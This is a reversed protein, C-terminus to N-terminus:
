QSVSSLLLPKWLEGCLSKGQKQPPSRKALHVKTLVGLVQNRVDRERWRLTVHRRRHISREFHGQHCGLTEACDAVLLWGRDNAEPDQIGVWTVRCRRGLDRLNLHPVFRQLNGPLLPFFFLHFLLMLPRASRRQCVSQSCRASRPAFEASLWCM